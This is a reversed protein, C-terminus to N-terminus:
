NLLIGPGQLLLPRWVGTSGPSGPPALGEPPHLALGTSCLPGQPLPHSKEGLLFTM